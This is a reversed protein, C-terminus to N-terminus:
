GTAIADRLIPTDVLARLFIGRAGNIDRDMKLDTKESRIEKKSGLNDVIEGTWSVTKSTYAENVDLVTKGTEFAKWQLFRKFDYHRFTLLNRVTQSRIRRSGRTVMESTSFTPLLIVDYNDVLWRATQHHLEDVLNRIKWRMRNMALRMRRKVARDHEKAHRSVLSDLHHALRQLRGFDGTGFKGCETESFFTQFTRIGPDLAVVRGQTEAVHRRAKHVVSLFFRGILYILRGDGHNEPHQEGFRVDGLIKRYIANSKIATKPIFCSQKPNKRSRFRMNAIPDGINRNKNAKKVASMARCADRIATRKVQYPADAFREPVDPKGVIMKAISYFSAKPADESNM